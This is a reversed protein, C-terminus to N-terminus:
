VTSKHIFVKDHGDRYPCPAGHGQELFGIHGKFCGMGM